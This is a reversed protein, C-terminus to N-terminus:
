RFLQCRVNAAHQNQDEDFEFRIRAFIAVLMIPSPFAFILDVHMFTLRLLTARMTLDILTGM